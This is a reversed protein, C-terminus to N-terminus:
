SWPDLVVKGRMGGRELSAHTAAVEDFGIRNAVEPRIRGEALWMFLQRLDDRFADPDSKREKTISYFSTAHAWPWVSWFAIRFVALAVGVYRRENALATTGIAVLRGGARLARYPSRFSDEAIGDLVVDMGGLREVEALWGNRPLPVAGLAELEAHHAEGASAYVVAGLQVAIIVAARGVAGNAGTILVREGAQLGGARVLAQYATVWSLVLTAAEAADIQDPVAVLATQPRVVYRANGGIQCLDAVRDGVRWASVGPGVADVRGVLDYGPTMPLPGRIEPYLGRRILTDTYQVSSAEVRVRVEDPGPEPLALTVQELVEPGGFAAYRVTQQETEVDIRPAASM